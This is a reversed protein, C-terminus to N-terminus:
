NPSCNNQTGAPEASVLAPSQLRAAVVAFDKLSFTDEFVLGCAGGRRWRVKARICPLYPSDIMASQALALPAETDLCCGQQSMNRTIAPTVGALTRLSLPIALNLRLLRRPYQADERILREISTAQSFRFSAEMGLDRVPELELMEGNQLVLAMAADRPAQHFFKLLVGSASVNRVICVFEGQGCVLKASRILATFRPEARQDQRAEEAMEPLSQATAANMAEDGVPKGLRIDPIVRLHGSLAAM